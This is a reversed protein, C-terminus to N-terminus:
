DVCIDILEAKLTGITVIAATCRGTVWGCCEGPNVNLVSGNQEIAPQHTHGTIVIDVGDLAEPPVWDIFHHVLLRRGGMELLLPGDELQPLLKRLGVREGDNNGLVCYVPLSLHDPTLLAAAFPAVFDGAHIVAEVGAREFQALAARFTPLRDHTDALVGIRM